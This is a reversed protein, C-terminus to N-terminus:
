RPGICELLNGDPDTFFFMFKGPVAEVVEGAMQVGAALLARHAEDISEVSFTVYRVGTADDIKGTGTPPSGDVEVIKIQADGVQFAKFRFPVSSCGAKSATAGSIEVERVMPLGLTGAYFSEAVALDKVVVGIEPFGKTMALLPM